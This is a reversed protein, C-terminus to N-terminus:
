QVGSVLIVSCTLEVSILIFELFIKRETGRQFLKEQVINM